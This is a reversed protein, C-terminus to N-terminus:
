PSGIRRRACRTRARRHISVAYGSCEGCHGPQQMMFLAARSPGRAVPQDGVAALVEHLQCGANQFVRSCCCSSGWSCWSVVRTRRAIENPFLLEVLSDRVRSASHSAHCCATVAATLSVRAFLQIAVALGDGCHGALAFARQLFLVACQPENSGRLIGSQAVVGHVLHREHRTCWVSCMCTSPIPSSDVCLGILVVVGPARGIAVLLDRDGSVPAWAGDLLLRLMYHLMVLIVFAILTFFDTPRM